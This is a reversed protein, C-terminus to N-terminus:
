SVSDSPLHEAIHQFITTGEDETDLLQITDKSWKFTFNLICREKLIDTVSEWNFLM